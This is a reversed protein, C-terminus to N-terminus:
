CGLTAHFGNACQWFWMDDGPNSPCEFETLTSGQGKCDATAADKYELCLAPTCTAAYAPESELTLASYVMAALVAGYLSWKRGNKMLFTQMKLEEEITM